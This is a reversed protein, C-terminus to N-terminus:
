LAFTKMQEPRECMNGGANKLSRTVKTVLLSWTRGSCEHDAIIDEHSIFFSIASASLWGVKENEKGAMMKRAELQFQPMSSSPARGIKHMLLDQPADESTAAEKSINVREVILTWAFFIFALKQPLTNFISKIETLLLKFDLNQGATLVYVAKRYNRDSKIVVMAAKM